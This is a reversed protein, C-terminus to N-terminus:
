RGWPSCGVLSRWGHSKGPLLVPTPHWQRRWTSGRCRGVKTERSRDWNWSGSTERRRCTKSGSSIQLVKQAVWELTRTPLLGHVSSGPPGCEMPNCLTSCSLLLTARLCQARREVLNLSGLTLVTGPCSSRTRPRTNPLGAGSQSCTLWQAGAGAFPREHWWWRPSQGGSYSGAHARLSARKEAPETVRLAPSFCSCYHREPFWKRLDVDGHSYPVWQCNRCRIGGILHWPFAYRWNQSAEPLSSM